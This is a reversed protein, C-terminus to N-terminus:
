SRIGGILSARRAGPRQSTSPFGLGSPPVDSRRCWRRPRTASFRSPWSLPLSRGSVPANANTRHEIDGGARVPAERWGSCSARDAPADGAVQLVQGSPDMVVIRHAVTNMDFAGDDIGWFLHLNAVYVDHFESDDLAFRDKREITAWYTLESASPARTGMNLFFHQRYHTCLDAYYCRELSRM